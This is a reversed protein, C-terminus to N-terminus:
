DCYKVRMNDEETAEIENKDREREGGKKKRESQSGTEAEQLRHIHWM